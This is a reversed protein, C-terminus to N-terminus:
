NEFEMLPDTFAKKITDVSTGLSHKFIFGSLKKFDPEGCYPIQGSFRNYGRFLERVRVHKLVSIDIGKEGITEISKYEKILKFAKKPGILRINSNYDTGCMICFDLFQDETFELADLIEKYYVVTAVSTSTNIKSVFMPAGYAIVDSDESLVFDVKSQKCLDACTTEAEVDADFFPIGLIGFLEKSNDFDSQQVHVSQKSIKDIELELMEFNISTYTNVRGPKLLSKRKENGSNIKEHLDLLIQSFEGTMHASVLAEQLKTIKDDLKDRKERRQAREAMKEEPASTDYIFCCHIDNKRLASVLNTIATLWKDGFITIYKFVYLSIDVAGKKYQLESLNIDKFVHPCQDRLFKNLGSIGM